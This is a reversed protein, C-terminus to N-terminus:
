LLAEAETTSQCLSTLAKLSTQTGGCYILYTQSLKYLMPKMQCFAFSSRIFSFTPIAYPVIAFYMSRMSRYVQSCMRMGNCLCLCALELNCGQANNLFTPVVRFNQLKRICCVVIYIFELYVANHRDNFSDGNIDM